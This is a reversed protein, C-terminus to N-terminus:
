PQVERIVAEGVVMEGVGSEMEIDGMNSTTSSAISTADREDAIVLRDRGAQKARFLAADALQVIENFGGALTSDAMGFSATFAPVEGTSLVRALSERVRHVIAAAEVLSCHPFVVVFEEGGYRCVVDVDRVSTRLTQAFLRLARDGTGHGHTDNLRKFEDLDAMTVAYSAHEDNLRRVEEELARRNLLGTLTDTSAQLMTRSMARLVGIRAGAQMALGELAVVEDESRMVGEPGTVHLVGVPTGLVSVPVCTASCAGAERDRLKPCAALVDSSAFRLTQGRRVAPCSWPTAVPCAPPGSAGLPVAEVVRRLHARSSDALLLEGPSPAIEGLAREVVRLAQHETEVMELADQLSSAFQHRSAERVVSEEHEVIARRQDALATRIPRASTIYIAIAGFCAFVVGQTIVAAISEGTMGVADMTLRALIFACFMGVVARVLQLLLASISDDIERFRGGQWIPHDDYDGM